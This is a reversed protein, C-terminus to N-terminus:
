QALGARATEVGVPRGAGDSPWAIRFKIIRRKLAHRTIGLLEAAGVLSGAATLAEVCLRHEAHELNFDGAARSRAGDRRATVDGALRLEDLM